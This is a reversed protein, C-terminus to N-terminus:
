SAPQQNASHRSAPQDNSLLEVLRSRTTATVPVLPARLQETILGLHALAAKAPAPNTEAFLARMLPLLSRHLERARDFDGQQAAGVMEVMRKPEVNSTVAIVGSAGLSMLPLTLSDEGSLLQLSTRTLIEDALGFRGSAEKAAIVNDLQAFAVYDDGELHTGTRSPVNYVVLPLGVAAVQRYHELLGASTPRNYYPTIVLCADAGNDKAIRTRAVAEDTSNSGTGAIVLTRGNAREVCFRVVSDHEDPTLTASEGTTGCPVLGQVGAEIQREILKALADWDIGVGSFPTVLATFVGRLQM